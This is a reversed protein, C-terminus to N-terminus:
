GHVVLALALMAPASPMTVSTSPEDNQMELREPSISGSCGCPKNKRSVRKTDSSRSVSLSVAGSGRAAVV